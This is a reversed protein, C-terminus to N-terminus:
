PQLWHWKVVPAVQLAPFPIRFHSLIEAIVTWAKGEIPLGRLNLDFGVFAETYPKKWFQSIDKVSHGVGINLWKPYWDAGLDHSLNYSIWYYRSENDDLIDDYAGEYYSDSPYFGLKFDFNRLYPVYEKGIQFSAGLVNAIEDGPSFGTHPGADRVGDEIEVLTQALFAASASIWVAKKRDMGALIYAEKALSTAFGTYFAHGFKDNHYAYPPDNSFHFPVTHENKWFTMYNQYFAAGLATAPIASAATVAWTSVSDQGRAASGICFVFALLIAHFRRYM